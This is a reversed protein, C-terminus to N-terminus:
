YLRKSIRVTDSTGNSKCIATIDLKTKSFSYVYVADEDYEWVAKDDSLSFTLGKPDNTTYEIVYHDGEERPDDFEVYYEDEPSYYETIYYTIDRSSQVNHGVKYTKGDSGKIEIGTKSSSEKRELEARMGNSIFWDKLQEGTRNTPITLTDDVSVTKSWKGKNSNIKAGSFGYYVEVNVTSEGVPLEIAETCDDDDSEITDKYVVDDDQIVEVDAKYVVDGYVWSVDFMKNGRGAWAISGDSRKLTLDQTHDEDDDSQGPYKPWEISITQEVPDVYVDFDDTMDEVKANLNVLKANETKIEGTTIYQEDMGEIVQAYPWTGIIHKITTVGTSPKEIKVPTEECNQVTSDLIHNTIRAQIRQFFVNEAIYSQKGAQAKDYGTWTSVTYASTGACLWSDKRAGYPIGYYEGEDEWTSTGTKAYVPYTDKVVDYSGGYKQVNSYLLTDTMYAAAESLIQKSKTSVNIPSKGNTFEIKEICHPENYTGLNLLMSYAAAMQKPSAMMNFGGIASQIDFTDMTTDYGLSQLYDVCYEDGKADIVAQLTQIACTNISSGLADYLTVDGKYTGDSNTIRIDTGAYFIPKDTIVHSTAWGLNEFALSYDLVPKISSGVQRSLSTAHNLLMQGGNAYSRGGLIGIIAGTQNNICISACEFYEDPFEFDDVAGVEIKDMTEQVGKNMHTYIHMTTSYPDLGTLDYVEDVVADIYAQYPIAKSADGDNTKVANTDPDVLLDEIRTSLGLQYQVDTIYGHMHMLYLVDDKRSNAAELNYFPNYYNPANIVGALMAAEIYNVDTIPKNFYYESAKAIGRINRDGGFNLKNVYQEFITKKSVNRELDMALSIEQVKRKVGSAGSRSAEEGTADDTFYTNKVLQMTFTSGGQSFSLTKLNELFAKTFRPLDFGNHEFFRSDEVAVFADVVSNPLDDYEINQRITLGLEAIVDGKSDYVISSEQPDFDSLNLTPKDKLMVMIVGLGICVGVLALAALCSLIVAWMNLKNVKRKKKVEPKNTKPEM